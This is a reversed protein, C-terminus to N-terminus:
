CEREYVLQFSEAAEFGSQAGRISALSKINKESRPFPYNGLESQYIKMIEIKEDIYDSINIFVNPKFTNSDTFNFDTESITEYMLAKKIFPNRFWKIVSQTAKSIIQHDTHVDNIFPFYIIEPSISNLIKSFKEIIDTLPVVDVKTTPIGLNFVEYFAYSKAVLDIENKRRNVITSSWGNEENIGTVILWYIKDNKEKHRLLTGGCGLTEDDPHPAICLVNSM